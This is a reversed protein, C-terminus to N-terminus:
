APAAALYHTRAAALIREAARPMHASVWMLAIQWAPVEQDRVQRAAQAYVKQADAVGLTEALAADVAREM